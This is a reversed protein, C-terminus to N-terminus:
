EDKIFYINVPNLQVSEYANCLQFYMNCGWVWLYGYVDIAASHNDMAMAYMIGEMIMIPAARRITTGDGLQGFDNNGWAWLNNYQDVALTHFHGASVHRIHEMIIWPETLTSRTGNGLQGERNSGWAWLTGSVDIALAHFRGISAYTFQHMDDAIYFWDDQTRQLWANSGYQAWNIPYQVTYIEETYETSNMIRQPTILSIGGIGVQGRDNSGWSMVSGDVQVALTHRGGASASLVPSLALVPIDRSTNTGDGLQGFENNGWTRLLREGTRLFLVAATHFDGASVSVVSDELILVPEHRNTVTGDGLQGYANGGWGWLSGDTKIIMAHDFGVSVYAVSDMVIMPIRNIYHHYLESEGIGWYWYGWVWLSGEKDVAMSFNDGASIQRINGMVITPVLHTQATGNGHEEWHNRGWAWVNGYTDLALSHFSGASATKASEMIRVPINRNDTTNDGLQGFRNDGWAWLSGDTKIAMSHAEGATIYAVSGMIMVPTDRNVNTSDGLQGHSNYGWAWLVEDHTLALSHTYGAAAMIQSPVNHSNTQIAQPIDFQIPVAQIPIAQIPIDEYIEGEAGHGLQGFDNAGWGWLNGRRDVALSFGNGKSASINQVSDLVRVPERIYMATSATGIQGLANSGWVWLEGGSIAMSHLGGTSIYSASDMIRVPLLQEAISNNGLQGESNRGWTYLGGDARIALTHHAGGSVRAVDNLILVPEIRAEKTGDGLQGAENDGWAWLSGDITIALSYDQGASIYKVSDMIRIPQYRPSLTGDGVQGRSNYGWAWLVGNNDLALTHWWGSSVSQVNEMIMVPINRMVTTGDGLQGHSNYGWAWLGGNKCIAMSFRVGASAYAIADMVHTPEHRDILTGDGLQGESNRGLAWLTGDNHLALVHEGGATAMIFRPHSPFLLAVTIIAAIFVFAVAAIATIIRTTKVQTKNPKNLKAPRNTTNPKTPALIYTPQSTELLNDTVDQTNADLTNVDQTSVKLTSVERMNVDLVSSDLTNVAGATEVAEGTEVQPKAEAQPQALAVSSIPPFNDLYDKIDSAFAKGRKNDIHIVAYLFAGVLFGINDMTSLALSPLTGKKINYISDIVTGTPIDSDEYIIEFIASVVTQLKNPNILPYINKEFSEYIDNFNAALASERLSTTVDDHCNFWRSAHAPDVKLDAYEKELSSLLLIHLRTQFKPKSIGWLLIKAFTGYCLCKM